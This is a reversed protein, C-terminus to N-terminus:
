NLHFNSQLNSEQKQIFERLLLRNILFKERQSDDKLHLFKYKQESNLMLAKVIDLMNISSDTILTGLTDSLNLKIKKILVALQNNRTQYSHNLPEIVGGGYLKHPLEEEFNRLYFLNVGRILVVSNGNENRAVVRVLEVQSGLNTHGNSDVYPIGFHMGTDECEAILQKYRPEFIRLPVEEGPLVIIHLPFLAIRYVEPKM